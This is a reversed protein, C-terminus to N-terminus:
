LAAHRDERHLTSYKKRCSSSCSEILQYVSLTSLLKDVSNCGQKLFPLSLDLMQLRHIYGCDDSTDAAPLLNGLNSFLMCEQVTNVVTNVGLQHTHVSPIQMLEDYGTNARMNQFLTAIKTLSPDELIIEQTRM